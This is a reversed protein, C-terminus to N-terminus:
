KSPDMVRGLFLITGTEMERIAFMFPHDAIFKPPESGLSVYGIQGLLIIETGHEDIGMSIRQTAKANNLVVGPVTIGSFDFNDWFGPEAIDALDTEQEIRFKPIYAEVTHQQLASMLAEYRAVNFNTEFKTIGDTAKPLFIVMSFKGGGLAGPMDLKKKDNEADGKYLFSFYPIELVQVEDDECYMCATEEKMTPVTVTTGTMLTFPREKTFHHEFKHKWHAKFYLMQLLWFETGAPIDSTVPPIRGQGTKRLWDNMKERIVASSLSFDIPFFEVSYNKATKDKYEEHLRFKESFWLSHKSLFIPPYSWAPNKQQPPATYQFLPPHKTNIDFSEPLHLCKEIKEATEGQVGVRLIEMVLAFAYPSYIANEDTNKRLIKKYSELAFVNFEEASEYFRLMPLEDPILPDLERGTREKQCSGFSVLVCFIFVLRSPFSM